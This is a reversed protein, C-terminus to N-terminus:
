FYNIFHRVGVKLFNGMRQHVILEAFVGIMLINAAFITCYSCVLGYERLDPQHPRAEEFIAIAAYALAAGLVTLTIKLWMIEQIVCVLFVAVSVPLRWIVYPSLSIFLSGSGTHEVYGGTHDVHLKRTPKFCMLSTISHLLEHDLVRWFRYRKRLFGYYICVYSVIGIKIQMISLLSLLKHWALPLFAFIVCSSIITYVLAKIKM